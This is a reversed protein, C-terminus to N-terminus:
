QCAGQRELDDRAVGPGAREPTAHRCQRICSLFSVCNFLFEGVRVAMVNSTKATVGATTAVPDGSGVDIQAETEDLDVPLGLAAGGDVQGRDVDSTLSRERLTDRQRRQGQQGLFPLLEVWNLVSCSCAVRSIGVFRM